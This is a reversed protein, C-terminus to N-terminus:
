PAALEPLVFPLDTDGPDQGFYTLAAHVQGRHHTQHNFMHTVMLGRPWRMERQAAYSFWSMDQDLWAQEVGEAWASMDADARVRAASLETFDHHLEGSQKIRQEPRPWGAFRMMWLRDGWLLHNLTGHLSGWFLRRDERREADTLKGAAAYVRRNMEANYAAMTRVYDAKIM